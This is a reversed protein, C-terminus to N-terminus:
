HQGGPADEDADEPSFSKVISNLIIESDAANEGLLYAIQQVTKLNKQIVERAREIIQEKQFAPETIDQFIGGVVSHPEITFISANLISREFRVDHGVIDEGSELVRRFLSVSPILGTLAMGELQAPSEVDEAFLRLFNANCEIIKLQDNVIVVASPMRQLLANAKKQALKRTYTACMMREAKAAMLAHAFERCSDYGCGGCNLEDESTYKGVTRLAEKLQMETYEDQTIPRPAYTQTTRVSAEEPNEATSAYSVINYRRQAVSANRRAKPGNVCSGACATMELFLSEDLKWADIGAIAQEINALGSFSMFRADADKSLGVIGRGMGGEIPYLAGEQAAAPEFCDAATTLLADLAIGEENLWHELDEFTLVVDLLEPHQEAEKKKAICPGIFVIAVDEGFHARLLKCHSLLPSLIASLHPLCDPKYKSIYDVVVPCASSIWAQKPESNMLTRVSASVQQAGLATESVAYFGLRKLAQILQAPRIGPFQSVFSPALSVVVRRGSTLLQQAAPLDDRVQKANRPCALVCNGCMICQEPVVRAVTDQVRIAKVPCERICKHCDQCERPETYIADRHVTDHQGM